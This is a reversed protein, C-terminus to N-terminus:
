ESSNKRYFSSCIEDIVSDIQRRTEANCAVVAPDTELVRSLVDISGSNGPRLTSTESEQCSDEYGRYHQEENQGTSPGTDTNVSSDDRAKSCLCIRQSKNNNRRNYCKGCTPCPNSNGNRHINEHLKLNNKNKFVMDCVTCNFTRLCLRNEVHRLLIRSSPFKKNCFQCVLSPKCIKQDNHTEPQNSSGPNVRENNQSRIAQGNENVTGSRGLGISASDRHEEQPAHASSHIELDLESELGFPIDLSHAEVHKDRNGKRNFKM